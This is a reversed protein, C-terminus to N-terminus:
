SSITTLRSTPAATLRGRSPLPGSFIFQPNRVVQGAAPRAPQNLEAIKSSFVPVLGSPTKGLKPRVDCGDPRQKKNM